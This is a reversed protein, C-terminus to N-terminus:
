KTSQEESIVIICHSHDKLYNFRHRGMINKFLVPIQSGRVFVYSYFIILCIQPKQIATSMVEKTPVLESYLVPFFFFSLSRWTINIKFM